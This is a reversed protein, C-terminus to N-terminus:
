RRTGRRASEAGAASQREVRRAHASGRRAAGSRAPSTRTASPARFSCAGVAAFALARALQQAVAHERGLRQESRSGPKQRVLERLEIGGDRRHEPAQQAPLDVNAVIPVATRFDLAVAGRTRGARTERMAQAVDFPVHSGASRKSRVVLSGHGRGRGRRRRTGGHLRTSGVQQARDVLPDRSLRQVGCM